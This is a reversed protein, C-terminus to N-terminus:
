LYMAMAHFGMRFGSKPGRLHLKFRTMWVPEDFTYTKASYYYSHHYHNDM